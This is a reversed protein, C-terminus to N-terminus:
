RSKKEMHDSGEEFRDAAKREEGDGMATEPRNGVRDRPDVKGEIHDKFMEVFETYTRDRAAEQEETNSM